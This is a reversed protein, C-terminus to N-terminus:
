CHAPNKVEWPLRGSPREAPLCWYEEAEVLRDIDPSGPLRSTSGAQRYYTQGQGPEEPTQTESEAERAQVQRELEAVLEEDLLTVYGPKLDCGVIEDGIV